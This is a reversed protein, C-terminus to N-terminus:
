SEPPKGSWSFLIRPLLKINGDPAHWVSSNVYRQCHVHGSFVSLTSWCRDGLSWLRCSAVSVLTDLLVQPVVAPLSMRLLCEEVSVYCGQKITICLYESMNYFVMGAWFLQPAIIGQAAIEGMQESSSVAIWLHAWQGHLDSFGLSALMSFALFHTNYTLLRVYTVTKGSWQHRANSSLHPVYSHHEPHLHGSNFQTVCGIGGGKVMKDAAATHPCLALSVAKFWCLVRVWVLCSVLM